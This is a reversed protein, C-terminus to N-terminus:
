SGLDIVIIQRYRFNTTGGGNTRFQLTFTNSGATVTQYSVYSAGNQDVDNNGDVETILAWSDSVARTTAGSIAYSVYGACGTGQPYTYASVIVLVKTGTTVTVSQATALGTYSNSTTTQNTDVRNQGSTPSASITGWSKASGDTTLYKGTNGTQDPLTAEKSNIQTQV